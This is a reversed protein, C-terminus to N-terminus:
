CRTLYTLETSYRLADEVYSQMAPVNQFSKDRIVQSELVRCFLHPLSHRRSSVEGNM